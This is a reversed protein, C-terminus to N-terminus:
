GVGVAWNTLLDFIELPILNTIVPKQV